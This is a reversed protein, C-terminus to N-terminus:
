EIGSNTVLRRSDLKLYLRNDLKVDKSFFGQRLGDLYMEYAPMYGDVPFTLLLV